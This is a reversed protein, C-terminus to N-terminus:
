KKKPKWMNSTYGSTQQSCVNCPKDHKHVRQFKCTGCDKIKKM